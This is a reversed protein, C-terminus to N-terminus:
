TSSRRKKEDNTALQLLYKECNSYLTHMCLNKTVVDNEDKTLTLFRRCVRRFIDIENLFCFVLVMEMSRRTSVISKKIKGKKSFPTNLFYSYKYKINSFSTSNHIKVWQYEM